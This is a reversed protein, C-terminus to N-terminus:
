VKSQIEVRTKVIRTRIGQGRSKFSNERATHTVCEPILDQDSSRDQSKIEEKVKRGRVQRSRRSGKKPLTWCVRIELTRALWESPKKEVPRDKNLVTAKEEPLLQPPLEKQLPPGTGVM